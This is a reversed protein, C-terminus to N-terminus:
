FPLDEENYSKPTTTNDVVKYPDMFVLELFWKPYLLVTGTFSPTSIERTTPRVKARIAAQSVNAGVKIGAPRGLFDYLSLMKEEM